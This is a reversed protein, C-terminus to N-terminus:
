VDSHHPLDAVAHGLDLAQAVGHEVFHDLEGAANVAEGQVEFFGFDAAHQESGTFVDLGTVFYFGSAAQQGHWYAAAEQAAKAEGKGFLKEGAEKFFSMIGM